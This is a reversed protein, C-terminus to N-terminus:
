ITENEYVDKKQENQYEIAMKSFSKWKERKKADLMVAKHKMRKRTGCLTKYLQAPLHLYWVGYESRLGNTLQNKKRQAKIIYCKRPKYM